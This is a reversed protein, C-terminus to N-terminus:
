RLRWVHGVFLGILLVALVALGPHAIMLGHLVRSITTRYCCHLAWFEYTTLLAAGLLLFTIGTILLRNV